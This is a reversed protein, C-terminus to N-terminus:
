QKQRLVLLGEEFEIILIDEGEKISTYAIPIMRWGGHRLAKRKIAIVEENKKARELLKELIDKFEGLNVRVLEAKYKHTPITLGM